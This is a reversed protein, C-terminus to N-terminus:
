VNKDKLILVEDYKPSYLINIERDAYKKFTGIYGEWGGFVKASSNRAYYKGDIKFCVEIKIAAPQLGLRNEGIKRSYAKLEIADKLWLNIKIKLRNNKIKLYISLALILLFLINCGVMAFAMQSDWEVEPLVLLVLTFIPFFFFVSIFLYLAVWQKKGLLQGQSLSADINSIQM